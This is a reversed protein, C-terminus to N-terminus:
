SGSESQGYVETAPYFSYWGFWYSMHGPLRELREEPRELLVLAEEEMRWNRGQEDVLIILESEAESEQPASFHHSGREYPRAAAANPLTVVVLDKGGLSDNLVPEDFLLALPYAKAHGNLNLGLVQAKTRLRDSRHPVPFM